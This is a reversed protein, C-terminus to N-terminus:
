IWEALFSLVGGLIWLSKLFDLALLLPGPDLFSRAPYQQLGTSICWFAFLTALLLLWPLGQTCTSSARQQLRSLSRSLWSPPPPPLEPPVYIYTGQYAETRVDLGLAAVNAAHVSTQENTLPIKHGQQLPIPRTHIGMQLLANSITPRNRFVSAVTVQMKNTSPTHTHKPYNHSTSPLRSLTISMPDIKNLPGHSM